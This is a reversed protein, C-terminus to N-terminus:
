SFQKNLDASIRKQEDSSLKYFSFFLSNLKALSTNSAELLTEKEAEKQVSKIKSKLNMLQEVLRTVELVFDKNTSNSELACPVPISLIYDKKIKPFTDKQDYFHQLWFWKVVDSVIVGLLFKINIFSSKTLFVNYITNLTLLKPPLYTAVPTVGIQRIGIRERSYVDPNGGSKISAARFDVFEKSPLLELELINAGDIVPYYNKTRAVDSVFKERDFTQIGFYADALEKLSLSRSTIKSLIQESGEDIPLFFEKKEHSSWKSQQVEKHSLDDPKESVIIRVSDFDTSRGKQAVFICTDVSAGSFVPYHFLRLVNIISHDLLLERLGYAFKNRLFSNPTIFGIVGGDKLLQIGQELFVQYLDIKYTASKYKEKLYEFVNRSNLEQLLVYPPNGVVADFGGKKFISPFRTSWDFALKSALEDPDISFDTSVLSNGCKINNKLEPLLPVTEALFDREKLLSNKNENELMKLYLSLQTVEVASSDIDVGFVNSVLIRRKFDVTLHLDGSEDDLWAINKFRRLWKDREEANDQHPITKVLFSQYHECVREFVRILFSGSGCAPDLFRLKETEAQFDKFDKKIFLDLINNLIRGVSHEVIFDVVYRPTYYVGGAKRVEPKEEITIGRGKLKVLKGLFREYVSGLIEVPIVNFLYPSNEDSLDEILQKIFDDDIELSESFHEKFLQGNFFPASTAPRKDLAKFHRVLDAYISDNRFRQRKSPSDLTLQDTSGADDVRSSHIDAFSILKRGTDINRDECIRM